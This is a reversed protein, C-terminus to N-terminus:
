HDYALGFIQEVSVMADAAIQAANIGDWADKDVEIQALIERLVVWRYLIVAVPVWLAISMEVSSQGSRYDPDLAGDDELM